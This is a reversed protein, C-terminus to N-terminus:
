GYVFTEQLPKFGAKAFFEKSGENKVAINALWNGNRKALIPPLPHHSDMFMTLAQRGFGRKQYQEFIAVGIENLETVEIAGVYEHAANRDETVVASILFWFRFPRSAVFADHDKASPMFKHSIWNAKPREALLGYLIASAHPEDYVSVLRM